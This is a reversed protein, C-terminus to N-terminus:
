DNAHAKITAHKRGRFSENAPRKAMASERGTTREIREFGDLGMARHESGPQSEFPNGATVGPATAAVIRDRGIKITIRIRGAEKGTRMSRLDIM